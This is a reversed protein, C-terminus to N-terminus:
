LAARTRSDAPPSTTWQRTKASQLLADLAQQMSSRTPSIRISTRTARSASSSSRWRPSSRTSTASSTGPGGSTASLDPAEHRHRPSRAPGARDVAGVCRPVRSSEAARPQLAADRGCRADPVINQNKCGIASGRRRSRARRQRERVEGAGHGCRRDPSGARLNARRRDRAHDSRESVARHRAPPHASRRRRRIRGAGSGDELHRRAVHGAGVAAPLRRQLPLDHGLRGEDILQRAYAIAPVRRYNFWVLTACAARPRRGDRAGEDLSLALPKECLVIKGAQAPPSRRRARASPEAARHRRRRHGPPRHRRALRHRDGGMGLSGGDGRAVRRRPRLAAHAPRPVPLDYFHAGPLLRELPGQGHLGARAPRRPARTENHKMGLDLLLDSPWTGARSATSEPM